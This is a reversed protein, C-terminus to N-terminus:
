EEIRYEITAGTIPDVYERDTDLEPPNFFEATRDVGDILITADPVRDIGDFQYQPTSDNDHPYRETVDEGNLITRPQVTDEQIATDGSGETPNTVDPENPTPTNEPTECGPGASMGVM